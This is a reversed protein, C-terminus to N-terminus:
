YNQYRTLIMIKVDCLANQFKEFDKLIIDSERRYVIETFPHIRVIFTGISKGEISEDKHLEITMESEINQSNDITDIIVKNSRKIIRSCIDYTIRNHIGKIGYKYQAILYSIDSIFKDINIDKIFVSCKSAIHNPYKPDNNSFSFKIADKGEEPISHYITASIPHTDFNIIFKEVSNKEDFEVYNGM